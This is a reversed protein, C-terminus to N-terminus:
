NSPIDDEGLKGKLKRMLQLEELQQELHTKFLHCRQRLSLASLLDQKVLSANSLAYTSLDLMPEFLEVKRLFEILEAPIKAGLRHLSDILQLIGRRNEDIEKASLDIETQVATVAIRRYPQNSLTELIRVRSLGQLILNSTGDENKKCARVMGVCAIRCPPEDDTESRASEDLCAVAFLRENTLVDRLMQRYRPEFIYLPMIAQPFLVCEKLTIVGVENPIEITETLVTLLNASNTGCKRFYSLRIPIPRSQTIFRWETFACAIRQFRRVDKALKM